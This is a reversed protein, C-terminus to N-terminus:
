TKITRTVAGTRWQEMRRRAEMVRALQNASLNAIKETGSLGTWLGVLRQYKATDNEGPPAWAHVMQDLTVSGYTSLLLAKQAEM